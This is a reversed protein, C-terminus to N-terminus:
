VRLPLQVFHPDGPALNLDLWAGFYAVQETAGGGNLTQVNTHPATATSVLDVSDPPQTAMSVASPDVRPSAFFPISATEAQGVSDNEIGLLPVSSANINGTRRYNGTTGSTTDYDLASVVTSFVRFFVSVNTAPVGVPARYRVKAVAYNYFRKPDNGTALELQSITASEDESLQTLFPHSADNPLSNFNALMQQIFKFPANADTDMAAQTAPGNAGAPGAGIIGGQQVKFVRTDVSLWYPSPDGPQQDIMYPNPQNVLVLEASAVATFTVTSGGTGTDV